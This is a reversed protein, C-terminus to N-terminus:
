TSKAPEAAIASGVKGDDDARQDSVTVLDRDTSTSRDSVKRIGLILPLFHKVFDSGKGIDFGLRLAGQIGGFANDKLPVINVAYLAGRYGRNLM